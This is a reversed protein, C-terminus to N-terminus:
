LRHRRAGQERRCCGAVVVSVVRSMIVVRGPIRHRAPRRESRGIGIAAVAGIAYGTQGLKRGSGDSM